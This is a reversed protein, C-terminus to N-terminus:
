IVLIQQMEQQLFLSIILKIMEIIQHTIDVLMFEEQQVLFHLEQIQQEQYIHIIIIIYYFFEDM